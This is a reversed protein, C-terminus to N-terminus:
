LWWDLCCRRCLFVIFWVIISFLLPFTSFYQLVNTM